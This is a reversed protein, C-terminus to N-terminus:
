LFLDEYFRDSVYRCVSNNNFNQPYHMQEKMKVITKKCFLSILM